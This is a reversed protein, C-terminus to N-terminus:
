VYVSWGFHRSFERVSRAWVDLFNLCSNSSCAGAHDIKFFLLMGSGLFVAALSITLSTTINRHCCIKLKRLTQTHGQPTCQSVNFCPFACSCNTVHANMSKNLMAVVHLKSSDLQLKSCSLSSLNSQVRRWPPPGDASVPGEKSWVVPFALPSGYVQNSVGSDFDVSCLSNRHIEWILKPGIRM